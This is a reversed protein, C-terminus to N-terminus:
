TSAHCCTADGTGHMTVSQAFIDNEYLCYLSRCNCDNRDKFRCGFQLRQDINLATLTQTWFLYLYLLTQMGTEYLVAVKNMFSQTSPPATARLTKSSVNVQDSAAKCRYYLNFAPLSPNFVQVEFM